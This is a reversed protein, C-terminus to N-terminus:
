VTATGRTVPRPLDEVTFTARGYDVARAFTGEIAALEPTDAAAVDAPEVTDGELLSRKAGLPVAEVRGSAEARAMAAALGTEGAPVM